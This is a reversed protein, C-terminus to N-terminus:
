GGHRAYVPHDPIRVLRLNRVDDSQGGGRWIVALNGPAVDERLVAKQGSGDVIGGAVARTGIEFNLVAAIVAAGEADNWKNTSAAATRRSVLHDFLHAM